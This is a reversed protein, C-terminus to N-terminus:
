KAFMNHWALFESTEDEEDDEDLGQHHRVIVTKIEKPPMIDSLPLEGLNGDNDLMPLCSSPSRRISALKEFHKYYRNILAVNRKYLLERLIQVNLCMLQVGSDPPYNNSVHEWIRCDNETWAEDKNKLKQKAQIEL